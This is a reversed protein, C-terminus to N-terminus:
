VDFTSKVLELFSAAVALWWFKPRGKSDQDLQASLKDWSGLSPEIRREALKDRIDEEFKIPAM